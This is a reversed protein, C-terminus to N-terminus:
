PNPVVPCSPCVKGAGFRAWNVLCVFEPLTTPAYTTVGCKRRREAATLGVQSPTAKRRKLVMPDYPVGTLRSVEGALLAACLLSIFAIRRVGNARMAELVNFTAITNQELDKRPHNWGDKIDADEAMRYADSDALLAEVLRAGLEHKARASAPSREISALIVALHDDPLRPGGM